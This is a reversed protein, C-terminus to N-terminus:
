LLISLCSLRAGPAYRRSAASSHFQLPSQAAPTSPHHQTAKQNSKRADHGARHRCVVPATIYTLPVHMHHPSSCPPRPTSKPRLHFAPSPSAPKRRHPPPMQFRSRIQRHCVRTAYAPTCVHRRICRSLASTAVGSTSVKPPPRSPRSPHSPHSPHSFFLLSVNHTPTALPATTSLRAAKQLALCFSPPTPVDDETCHACTPVLATFLSHPHAGAAAPPKRASLHQAGRRAPRPSTFQSLPLKWPPVVCPPKRRCTSIAQQVEMPSASSRMLRCVAGAGAPM